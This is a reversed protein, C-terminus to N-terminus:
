RDLLLEEKKGFIGQPRFAMLGILILGVNEVTSYALVRKLDDQLLAFLIGWVASISSTCAFNSRSLM